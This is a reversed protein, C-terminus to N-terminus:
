RLPYGASRQNAADVVFLYLADASPDLPGLRLTAAIEGDSWSTVTSIAIETANEIAPANAIEIRAAAGPGIAVYLDDMVRRVDGAARYWAGFKLRDWRAPIMDLDQLIRGSYDDRTYGSMESVHEFTGTSTSGYPDAADIRVYSSMTNWAQFQWFDPLWWDTGSTNGDTKFSGRGTHTAFVVDNGNCAGTSCSYDYNDGRAGFMMWVDKASSDTSFQTPGSGNGPFDGLDRISLHVFVEDFERLGFQGSDDPLGTVASVGAGGTLATDNVLMSLSGSRSADSAYQGSPETWVGIVPDTASLPADASGGEMDDFLVITPGIDGFGSGCVVVDGGEAIAGLVGSVALGSGGPTCTGGGGDDAPADNAADPEGVDGTADVTDADLPGVGTDRPDGDDGCATCLAALATFLVLRETRM